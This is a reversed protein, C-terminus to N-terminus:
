LFPLKILKGFPKDYIDATQIKFDEQIPYIYHPRINSKQYGLHESLETELVEQITRKFLDKLTNHVDEATKSEKAM